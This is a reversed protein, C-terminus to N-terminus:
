DPLNDQGFPEVQVPGLPRPGGERGLLQVAQLHLELAALVHHAALAGLQGPLEVEGFSLYSRAGPRQEAAVPRSPGACVGGRGELGAGVPRGRVRCPWTPVDRM